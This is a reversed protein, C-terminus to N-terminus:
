ANNFDDSSVIIEKRIERSDPFVLGYTQHNEFKGTIYKRGTNLVSIIEAAPEGNKDKSGSPRYEVKDGVNLRFTNAEKIKIINIHQKTVSDIIIIRGDKGFDVEGTMKEKLNEFNLSYYKNEKSIKNEKVLEKLERKLTEM